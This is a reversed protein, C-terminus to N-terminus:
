QDINDNIFDQKVTNMLNYLDLVSKIVASEDGPSLPYMDDDGISTSM